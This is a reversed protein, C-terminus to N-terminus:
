IQVDPFVDKHKDFIRIYEEPMIGLSDVVTFEELEHELDRSREMNLFVGKAEEAQKAASSLNARRIRQVEANTKEEDVDGGDYRIPLEAIIMMEELAQKWMLYKEGGVILMFVVARKNVAKNKWRLMDNIDDTYPQEVNLVQMCWAKRKRLDPITQGPSFPDYMYILYKLVFEPDLSGLGDKNRWFVRSSYFESFSNIVSEGEGLSHIPFQM